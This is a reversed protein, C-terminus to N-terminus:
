VAFVTSEVAAAAAAACFVRDWMTFVSFSIVKEQTEM